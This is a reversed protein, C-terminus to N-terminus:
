DTCARTAHRTGYDVCSWFMVFLVCTRSVGTDVLVRRHDLSYEEGSVARSGVRAPCPGLCARTEPRTGSRWPNDVVNQRGHSSIM